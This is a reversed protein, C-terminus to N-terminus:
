QGLREQLFQLEEATISRSVEIAAYSNFIQGVVYASGLIMASMVLATFLYENNTDTRKNKGRIFTELFNIKTYAFLGFGALSIVVAWAVVAKALTYIYAIEFKLFILGAVIVLLLTINRAIFDYIKQPLTMPVEEEPIFNM